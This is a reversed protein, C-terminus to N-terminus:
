RRQGSQEEVHEIERAAAALFGDHVTMWDRRLAENVPLGAPQYFYHRLHPPQATRPGVFALSGYGRLIAALRNMGETYRIRAEFRM